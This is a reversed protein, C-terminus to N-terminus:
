VALAEAPPALTLSVQYKDAYSQNVEVAQQRQMDTRLGDIRDQQPQNDRTLEVLQTLTRPAQAAGLRYTELSEKQRIRLANSRM